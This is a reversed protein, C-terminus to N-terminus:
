LLRFRRTKQSRANNDTFMTTLYTHSNNEILSAGPECKPGTIPLIKQFLEHSNPAQVYITTGWLVAAKVNKWNTVGYEEQQDSKYATKNFACPSISSCFRRQQIFTYCCSM